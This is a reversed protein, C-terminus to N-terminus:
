STLVVGADPAFTLWVEDDWTLPEEIVRLANIVTARVIEGTSLKVVYLTVDGLYAIDYVEGKLANTDAREPARRSIRMKEPRIAFSVPTGPSIATGAETEIITGAAAIRTLAGSREELTGDLINVHGIFDAVYRSSPAEYIVAPTAVQAIRGERMLAIRDAMVM